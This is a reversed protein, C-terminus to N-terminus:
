SLIIGCIKWLLNFVVYGVIVEQIREIECVAIKGKPEKGTM